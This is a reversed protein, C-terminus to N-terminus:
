AKDQLRLCRMRNIVAVTEQLRPLALEGMVYPLLSDAGQRAADDLTRRIGEVLTYGAYHEASHHILHGIMLVQGRDLLQEIAALDVEEDGYLLKNAGIAQIRIRRNHNYPSLSAPDPRREAAKLLIPASSEAHEKHLPTALARARATVEVPQYSEMCIVCDAESFYDGSGGMVLITSVGYQTYLERIRHALPTIPEKEKCVLAQMRRDRIMFNTASTDEDILLLRSGCELAEIINAAQSTSGSANETSFAHTDRGFPLNDIFPSIDVRSIARGDEARIKVADPLSAVRERGDGPIHNYIGRELANLLTSKGHFGGGVILNVGAAIGMGRIRGAHPLTVECALSDPSRFPIAQQQLPRDDIGSRRPLLSGDAIFAILDQEALWNRLYEQDDVSDVHAALAAHDLRAYYLADRAVAPLEDFLMSAAQRALIRRGDAPLALRMRAEISQDSVLVANRTLVQQGSCAITVQGSKGSGREGKVHHQIASAIARGLYDELAIRRISSDFLSIPFGAVDAALQIRIRSPDAFPDGQVHDVMLKFDGYDYGGQLRKYAKYGMGDIQQLLERLQQM